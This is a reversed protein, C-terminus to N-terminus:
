EVPNNAITADTTALHEGGVSIELSKKEGVAVTIIIILKSHYMKLKLILFQNAKKEINM